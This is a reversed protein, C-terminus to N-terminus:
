KEFTKKFKKTHKYIIHIDPTQIFHILNRHVMYFCGSFLWKQNAILQVPFNKITHENLKYFLIIFSFSDDIPRYLYISKLKKQKRIITSVFQKRAYENLKNYFYQLISHAM